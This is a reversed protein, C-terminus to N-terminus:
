VTKASSRAIRTRSPPDCRRHRFKKVVVTRGGPWVSVKGHNYGATQSVSTYQRLAIGSFFKPLLRIAQGENMEQTDFEQVLKALLDLVLVGDERSFTNDRKMKPLIDRRFKQM